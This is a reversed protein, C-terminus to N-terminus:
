LHTASNLKDTLAVRLCESNTALINCLYLYLICRYPLTPGVGM